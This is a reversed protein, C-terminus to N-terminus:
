RRFLKAIAGLIDGQDRVIVAKGVSNGNIDQLTAEFDITANREVTDALSRLIRAVEPSYSIDGNEDIFAANNCDITVQFQM